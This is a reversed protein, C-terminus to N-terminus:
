RALAADLVSYFAPKPLLDRDFLRTFDDQGPNTLPNGSFHYYHDDMLGFFTVSTVNAQGSSKLEVITQMLEKYKAAQNVYDAEKVSRVNPVRITLETLHIELDEEAFLLIADRVNPNGTQIDPWDANIYGQMGVGDLDGAEKIPRVTQIIAETKAPLFTNYDNYFLKVSPAAYERAFRFADAIYGAGGYINFWNSQRYEGDDEVAENVVDWAYIVDPYNEDCYEVVQQIYSELRNKLTEKDVFEGSNGYGSRFFWDPTQNHWVLVHGRMGIGNSQCYQMGADIGSFNLAPADNGGASNAQCQAQDLLYQPKMLNSFTTSNFHQNMLEQMQPSEVITNSSSTGNIAAGIKIDYKAYADKLSSAPSETPVETPKETPKPSEQETPTSPNPSPASPSPAISQPPTPANTKPAESAPQRKQKPNVAITCKASRKKGNLTFKATLTAKKTPKNGTVKVGNKKKNTLTAANKPKVSWKTKKAKKANRLKLTKTAGVVLSVKKENFAPKKAAKTTTPSISAIFCLVLAIVLALATIKKSKGM